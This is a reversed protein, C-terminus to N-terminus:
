SKWFDFYNYWQDPYKRVIRELEATYAAALQAIQERRPASFDYSLPQVYVTYGKVSTKMVNVAIAELRRMAIVSFPGVPLDADAGLLTTSVTKPSGMVRDAPMSVTEGNALAANIEFLHGMDPRVAIMHINTHGFMKDRNAMVTAKEGGFVLANFRKQKAILTYGAMEYNGIHSSLQVFGEGSRDALRQFHDYGEVNLSFRRGAYMAFRDIVVQSFLCHNLYTHWASRLPSYGHRHRFYRYAIRRSPNLILCVPVVFLATFAYIIRVDVIRLMAILREHMWTNGYTTGAWAREGAMDAM